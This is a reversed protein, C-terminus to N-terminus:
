SLRWNVGGFERRAECCLWWSGFGKALFWFGKGTGIGERGRRNIVRGCGSGHAGEYGEGTNGGYGGGANGGYGFGTSSEHDGVGGAEGFNGSFSGGTDSAGFGDVAPYNNGSGNDRFNGGLGYGGADFGGSCTKTLWWANWREEGNRGGWGGEEKGVSGPLWWARRMGRGGGFCM